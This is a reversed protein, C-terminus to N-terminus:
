GQAVFAAEQVAAPRWHSGQRQWHRLDQPAASTPLLLLHHPMYPLHAAPSCSVCGGCLHGSPNRTREFIRLSPPLSPSLLPTTVPWSPLQSTMALCLNNRQVSLGQTRFTYPHQRLQFVLGFVNIHSVSGESIYYVISLQLVLRVTGPQWLSSLNWDSYLTM